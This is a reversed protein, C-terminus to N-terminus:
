ARDDHEELITSATLQRVVGVVNERLGPQGYHKEVAVVIEEVSREGNCLKLVLATAASVRLIHPDQDRERLSYVIFESENRVDPEHGERLAEDIESVNYAFHALSVDRRMSPREPYQGEALHKGTFSDSHTPRSRQRVEQLTREFRVLDRTYEPLQGSDALTEEMFAGFQKADVSSTEGPRLPYVEHYREYFTGLAPDDIAFLAPFSRELRSRRKAKLSSAFWDLQQWDIRAVAEREEATLFYGDLVAGPELHLLRRSASSTYLRALCAQMESASM